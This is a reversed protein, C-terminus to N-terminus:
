NERKYFPPKVVVADIKKNRVEIKLETGIKAHETAVLALGISKKLTPSQTGSTM